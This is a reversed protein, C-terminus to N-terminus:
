SNFVYVSQVNDQWMLILGLVFCPIYNVFFDKCVDSQWEKPCIEAAYLQVYKQKDVDKSNISNRGDVKGIM